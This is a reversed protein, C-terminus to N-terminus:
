EGRRQYRSLKRKATSVVLCNGRCPQTAACKTVSRRPLGQSHYCPLSWSFPQLSFVWMHRSVLLDEQTQWLKKRRNPLPTTTAPHMSRRAATWATVRSFSFSFPYAFNRSTPLRLVGENPEMLFVFFVFFFLGIFPMLQRQQTIRGNQNSTWVKDKPLCAQSKFTATYCKTAPWVIL